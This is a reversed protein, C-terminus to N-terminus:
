PYDGSIPLDNAVRRVVCAGRAATRMTIVGAIAAAQSAVDSPTMQGNTLSSAVCEIIDDGIRSWDPDTGCGYTALSLIPLM